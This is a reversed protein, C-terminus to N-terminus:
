DIAGIAYGLHKVLGLMVDSAQDQEPAFGDIIVNWLRMSTFGISGAEMQSARVGGVSVHGNEIEEVVPQHVGHAIDATDYIRYSGLRQEPTSAVFAGFTQRLDYELWNDWVEVTPEGGAVDVLLPHVTPVAQLGSYIGLPSMRTLADHITHVVLERGTEGGDSQQALATLSNMTASTGAAQLFLRRNM